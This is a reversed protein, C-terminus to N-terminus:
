RALHATLLAALALLTALLVYTSVPLGASPHLRARAARCVSCRGDAVPQTCTACVLHDCCV